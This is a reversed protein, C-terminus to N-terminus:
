IEFRAFRKIVINEGLSMVYEEVLNKISKEGDKIWTQSILSVGKKYKELKGKVIEEAINEPKGSSKIQEAYIEKEKNLVDKPIDEENVFLPNMAAIQLCIEHALKQFNESNAVFDSECRLDLMVGVKKNQHIYTEIIGMGAKRSAKKQALEKGKKRLIEKAKELDNGSEELAKKCESISIGTEERLQKIIDITAM